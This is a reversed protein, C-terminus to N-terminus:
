YRQTSTGLDYSIRADYTLEESVVGADWIFGGHATLLNEHDYAWNSSIPQNLEGNIPTDDIGPKVYITGTGSNNYAGTGFGDDTLDNYLLTNSTCGSGVNIGYRPKKALAGARCVNDKLLNYDSSNEVTIDDYANNTTQSNAVLTNAIISCYSCGYVHIGQKGNGQGQNGHISTYGSSGAIYIGAETNGQCINDAIANNVSDTTVRIGNRGNGQCVNDTITSHSTEDIYIGNTTNGVSINGSITNKSSGSYTAIGSLTNGKCLNGTIRNFDSYYLEIGGEGNDLVWCNRIESEDVYSWKIGIDNTASGANGDVCFDALLIGTLESGSSGTFSIIDLDATTTTLITNKGNGRLTINSINRGVSAECNYTGDLLKVEGGTAPLADLAAQIKLHDNTGTCFQDAQTTIESNSAAIVYAAPRVINVGEISAVGASERAITTDTPDDLEIGAFQPNDDAGLGFATRAGEVTSAGTGGESIGVVISFLLESKGTSASGGWNIHFTIGTNNPLDSFTAQGSSDLTETEVLAGTDDRYAEVRAGKPIRGKEDYVPPITYPERTGCTFCLTTGWASEEEANKIQAAFAYTADETLSSLDEYFTGGTEESGTWSTTTYSAGVEVKRYRFRYECAGGGDDTVTGNIRASTTSINTARGTSVEPTTYYTIILQPAYGETTHNHRAFYTGAFKGYHGSHWSAEWAPASIAVDYNANKVSFFTIDGKSIGALGDENLDFTVWEGSAPWNAYTITTSFETSQTQSYDGAVLAESSEPTAGYINTTPTLPTDFNDGKGLSRLKVQAETITAGAPIDSTDFGVIGRIISNWYDEVETACYIYAYNYYDTDGDYIGTGAGVVLDVWPEGSTAGTGLSRRVGAGIDSTITTEM